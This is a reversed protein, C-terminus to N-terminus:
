MLRTETEDGDEDTDIYIVNVVRGDMDYETAEKTKWPCEPCEFYVEVKELAVDDNKIEMETGCGHCKM